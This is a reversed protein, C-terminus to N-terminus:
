FGKIYDALKSLSVKEEKESALHKVSVEGSVIEDEGIVVSFEISDKVAKKIQDGIKKGTFDVAVKINQERLQTAIEFLKEDSVGANCLYLQAPSVFAPLLNRTELFDRMTVDGMGFGIAPTKEGGFLSLLDDFRGGGFMSRNNEPNTDHIEFVIGTYYDFGRVIEPSFEANTIGLMKLSDILKTIEADAEFVMDYKRGIIESALEDFNDIKEKKDILKKLKYASEGTIGADALTKDLLPRSSIKIKFDGDRAGFAKMISYAMQIMEIEASIAEVGFM